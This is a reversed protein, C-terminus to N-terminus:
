LKKGKRKLLWLSVGFKGDNHTLMSEDINYRKNSFRIQNTAPGVPNSGTVLLEGWVQLRYPAAASDQSRKGVFGLMTKNVPGTLSTM